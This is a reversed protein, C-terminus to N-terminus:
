EKGVTTVNIVMSDEEKEEVEEEFNFTESDVEAIESHGDGNQVEEAEKDEEFESANRDGWESQVGPDEETEEKKASNFDSTGTRVTGSSVTSSETVTDSEGAPAPDEGSIRITEAADYENDSDQFTEDDDSAGEVKREETNDSTVQNVYPDFEEVDDEHDDQDDDSSDLNITTQAIHMFGNEIFASFKEFDINIRGNQPEVNTHSDALISSELKDKTTEDEIVNNLIFEAFSYNTLMCCTDRMIATIMLGSGAIEDTTLNEKLYAKFQEKEDMDVTYVLIRDDGFMEPESIFIFKDPNVDYIGMRFFRDDFDEKSYVAVPMGTIKRYVYISDLYDDLDAPNVTVTDSSVPVATANGFSDRISLWRMGTVSPTRVLAINSRLKSKLDKATDVDAKGTEADKKINYSGYASSVVVKENKDEKVNASTGVMTGMIMDAIQAGIDESDDVETAGLKSFDIGADADSKRPTPETKGVGLSDLYADLLVPDDFLNPNQEFDFNDFDGKVRKGKSM